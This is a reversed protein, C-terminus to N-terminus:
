RQDALRSTVLFVLSAISIVDIPRDCPRNVPGIKKRATSWNCENSKRETPCRKMGRAASCCRSAARLAPAFDNRKRSRRAVSAAVYKYAVSPESTRAIAEQRLRNPRSLRHVAVLRFLYGSRLRSVRGAPPLRGHDGPLRNRPLQGVLRPPNRGAQAASGHEHRRTGSPM